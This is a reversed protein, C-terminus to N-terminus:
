LLLLIIFDNNALVCHCHVTWTFLYYSLSAHGTWVANESTRRRLQVAASRTTTTWPWSLRYTQNYVCFLRITDLLNSLNPIMCGNTEYRVHYSFYNYKTVLNKERQSASSEYCLLLLFKVFDRKRYRHRSFLRTETYRLIYLYITVLPAKKNGSTM